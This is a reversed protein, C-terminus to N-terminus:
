RTVTQPIFNARALFSALYLVSSQRCLHHNKTDTFLELLRQVFSIGIFLMVYM